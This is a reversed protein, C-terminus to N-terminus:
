IKEGLARILMSFAFHVFMMWFVIFFLYSQIVNYDRQAISNVLFFSVGPVAFVFEVVATGGIVWAFKGVIASCLGILAPRLGATLLAKEAQFGRAMEARIYAQERIQLFHKRMVRSLGGVSGFVVMMMGLAMKIGVHGTFVKVLRYKVGIYYILIVSLIFVPVTQSLLSWFSTLRDFFGKKRIASFYGGFFGLFSAIIVGGLGLGLSYPMGRFSEAKIDQGNILSRGWDGCIFAGLWKIYQVYLPRDLGWKVQVMRINEETPPLKLQQLLLEVPGVPVSRTIWFIVVSMLLLLLVYKMVFKLYRM